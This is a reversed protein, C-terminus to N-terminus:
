DLMKRAKTLFDFHNIEKTPDVRYSAQINHDFKEGVEKVITTSWYRNFNVIAQLSSKQQKNQWM